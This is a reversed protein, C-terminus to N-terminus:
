TIMQYPLLLSADTCALHRACDYMVVDFISFIVTLSPDLVPIPVKQERPRSLMLGIADSRHRKPVSSLDVVAFM